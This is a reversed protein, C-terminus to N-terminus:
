GEPTFNRTVLPLYIGYPEFNATLSTEAESDLVFSDPSTTGTLAGEWGAFYGATATATATITTGCNYPGSAPELSVTGSALGTAMVTVDVADYTIMAFTPTIAMDASIDFVLTEDDEHGTPVDGIWGTFEYCESPVATATVTTGPDYGDDPQEPDLEVSGNDADGITVKYTSVFHGTLVSDAEITFSDTADMSTLAGSWEVFSWPDTYNATATITTGCSYVGGAPMLSIDADAEAPEVVTGLTYSPMTFTAEFSMDGDVTTVVVPETEGALDGTWGAFEYCYEPTATVTITEGDQFLGDGNADEVDVEGGDPDANFTLDFVELFTASVTKDADMAVSTQTVTGSADGGWESFWWGADAEATLDVSEGCDYATKDPDKTVTGNGVTDVTLTFTPAVFHATVTYDADMTLTVPDDTSGDIPAGTWHDFAWCPDVPQADLTVVEGTMYPAGDDSSVDVSCGATEASAPEVNVVLTQEQPVTVTGKVTAVDGLPAGAANVTVDSFTLDTSCPDSGVTFDITAADIPDSSPSMTGAVYHIEGTGNDITTGFDMNFADPTVADATVCNPDYSIKLDASDPSVGTAPVLHIAVTFSEEVAVINDAPEISVTVDQAPAVPAAQSIVAVVLSVVLLLVLLMPTQKKM